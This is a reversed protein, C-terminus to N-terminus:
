PSGLLVSAEDNAKRWDEHRLWRGFAPFTPNEVPGSPVGQRMLKETDQPWAGLDHSGGDDSYFALGLVHGFEHPIVQVLPRVCPDTFMVVHNFLWDSQFGELLLTSYPVRRHLNEADGNARLIFLKLHARWPSPEIELFASQEDAQFKGDSGSTWGSSTVPPQMTDYHVNYTGSSGDVQFTIHAQVFCENMAAVIAADTPLGVPLATGPSQSDWIRYIGVGVPGRKPLVMINLKQCAPGTSGIRADVVADGATGQGTLMLDTSGASFTKPTVDVSAGGTAVVLEINGAATSPEFEIKTVESTADKDVSTWAYFGGDRVKERPEFGNNIEGAKAKFEVKHVIIVPCTDQSGWTMRTLAFVCLVGVVLLVNSRRLVPIGWWAARTM